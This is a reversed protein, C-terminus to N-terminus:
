RTAVPNTPVGSMRSARHTASRGSTAYRMSSSVAGGDHSYATVIPAVVMQSRQSEISGSPLTFGPVM